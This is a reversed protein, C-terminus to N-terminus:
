YLPVLAVKDPKHWNFHFSLGGTWNSTSLTNTGIFSNPQLNPRITLSLDDNIDFKMLHADIFADVVTLIHFAALGAISYEFAQQFGDRELKLREISFTTDCINTFSSTPDVEALYCRRFRRYQRGNQVVLYGLTGIGAYVIPLKWYKRNYVQGGGPIALGLIVATRVRHKKLFPKGRKKIKNNLSLSHKPTTLIASDPATQGLLLTPRAILAICCLIHIYLQKMISQRRNKFLMIM